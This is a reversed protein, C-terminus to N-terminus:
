RSARPPARAGARAPPPPRPRPRARRRRASRRLPGSVRSSIRAPRLRRSRARRPPRPPPRRARSARQRRQQGLVQAASGGKAPRPRSRPSASRTRDLHPEVPHDHVARHDPRRSERPPTPTRCPGARRGRRARRLVEGEDHARGYRLAGRGLASSTATPPPPAAGSSGPWPPARTVRMARGARARRSTRRRGRPPPAAARGPSASGRAEEQGAVPRVGAQGGGDLARHAAAQAAARARGSRRRRLALRRTKGDRAPGRRAQSAPRPARRRQANRARRVEEVEAVDGHDQGADAQPPAARQQERM